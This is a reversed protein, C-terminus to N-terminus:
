DHVDGAQTVVPRNLDLLDAPVEGVQQSSDGAFRPPPLLVVLLREGCSAQGITALTWMKVPIPQPGCFEATIRDGEPSPDRSLNLDFSLEAMFPGLYDGRDFDITLTSSAGGNAPLALVAAQGGASLAFGKSLRGACLAIPMGAANVFTCQAAAEACCLTAACAAAVLARM